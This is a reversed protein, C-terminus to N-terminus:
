SLTRFGILSNFIKEFVEQSESTLTELTDRHSNILFWTPPFLEKLDEKYETKYLEEIKKARTRMLLKMYNDAEKSPLMTISVAPIGAALFGANDSYSVPLTLWNDTSSSLLKAAKSELNAYQKKFQSSASRPLITESLVPVTGRGMCDFVFVDTESLEIQKFLAALEFAGQNIVSSSNEEGDTFIIRINHAGEYSLLRVAVQMLFFVAYSNDNAGETEPVRDYHAVITKIRFTPDYSKGPFHLLIHNKKGTKLLSTSVGRSELFNRIFDSRNCKPSIFFRFDSDELINLM